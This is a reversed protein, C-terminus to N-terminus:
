STGYGQPLKWAWVLVAPSNNKVRLLYDGGRFELVDEHSLAATNGESELEVSGSMVYVTCPRSTGELEDDPDYTYTSVRARAPAGHISRIASETMEGHM